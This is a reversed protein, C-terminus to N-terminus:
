KVEKLLFVYQDADKGPGDAWGAIRSAKIDGVTVRKIPENKVVVVTPAAVPSGAALVKARRAEIQSTAAYLELRVIAYEAATLASRNKVKIQGITKLSDSLLLSREYAEAVGLTRARAMQVTQMYAALKKEKTTTLAPQRVRALEIRAIERELYLLHRALWVEDSMTIIPELTKALDTNGEDGTEEISAVTAQLCEREAVTLYHFTDAVSGDNQLLLLRSAIEEGVSRKAPPPMGDPGPLPAIPVDSIIKCEKPDSMAVILRLRISTKLSVDRAVASTADKAFSGLSTIMPGVQDTITASTSTLNGKAALKIVFGADVFPSPNVKLSYMQSPDTEYTVALTYEGVASSTSKLTYDPRVLLYPIGTPAVAAMAGDADKKFGLKMGEYTSCGSLLVIAIAVLTVCLTKFRLYPLAIM